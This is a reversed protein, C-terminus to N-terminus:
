YLLAEEASVPRIMQRIQSIRELYNVVNGVVVLAPPELEERQVISAINGVNGLLVRQNNRTANQIVAVPIETNGPKEAIADMIERLATVGMYIVYTKESLDLGRFASYDDDSKKHGTIFVVQSAYDRHTLPMGISTSAGSASTIGPIVECRFGQEIIHQYEEGGRGFIFPDGGKLRSVVPYQMAMETITSNIEEQPLTHKGKSKGVYGLAVSKKCFQLVEPNILHDYLM